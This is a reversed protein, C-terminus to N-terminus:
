KLKDTLEKSVMLNRVVEDMNKSIYGYFLIDTVIQSAFRSSIAGYRIKKEIEPITILIDSMNALKGRGAKTISILKAGKSKAYEAALLVEKSLATYSIAILLDDEKINTLLSLNTHADREYFSKKGSRQLKYLLDECILGSSGIGALYVNDARILNDIAKEILEENILAYTKEISSIVTAKSKNIIDNVSDGSTIVESSLSVDETELSKAIDLKLSTYGDYGIKQVFRIIASQSTGTLDALNMSSIKIVEEPKDQIFQAIKKDAPTLEEYREKIRILYTM